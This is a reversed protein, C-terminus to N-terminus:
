DPKAEGMWLCPWTHSGLARIGQAGAEWALQSAFGQEWTAQVTDQLWAALRATSQPALGGRSRAGACGAPSWHPTGPRGWSPPSSPGAPGPHRAPHPATPFTRPWRLSGRREQRGASGLQRMRVEMCAGDPDGDALVDM